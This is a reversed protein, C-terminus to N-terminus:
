GRLAPEGTEIRTVVEVQLQLVRAALSHAAAGQQVSPLSGKQFVPGHCPVDAKTRSRGEGRRHAPVARLHTSRRHVVGYPRVRRTQRHFYRAHKEVRCGKHRRDGSFPPRRSPIRNGTRGGKRQVTRQAADEPEPFPAAGVELKLSLVNQIADRNSAPS